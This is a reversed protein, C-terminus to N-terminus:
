RKLQPLLTAMLSVAEERLIGLADAETQATAEIFGDMDVDKATFDGQQYCYKCYSESPSGDSETGHVEPQPIPMSCCQGREGITASNKFTTSIGESSSDNAIITNNQSRPAFPIGCIVAIANDVLTLPPMDATKEWTFLM